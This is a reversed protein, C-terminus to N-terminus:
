LIKEWKGDLGTIRILNVEGGKGDPVGAIVIRDGEKAQGRAAAERIAKGLLGDETVPGDSFMPIVGRTLALKRYTGGDPTIGLVCAAPFFRSIMRATGGTRSYAAILKAGSDAALACATRSLAELTGDASFEADKACTASYPDSEARAAIKAMTAVAEAPYAGEATEGTLTLASAGDYVANAIDSIEARTPRPNVTMSQLMETAVACTKGKRRCIRIIRKQIAPLEEFPIETGLDGRAVLIGDAVDAIEEINDVGERNEIKAILEIGGGPSGCEKLFKKVDAVDQARSVFSLAFFDAGQMVGFKLDERDKASLYERDLRKGPFYMSKRDSLEGCTLARCVAENKKCESVEFVMLGNNVTIKDGPTVIKCIDKCASVRRGDGQVNESTFSFVDGEKLFIKGKEFTGIRIEPGKTDFLIPLPVRMRERVRKILAVYQAHSEHTGHSLNLRAVDMGGEAMECLIKEDRCAPGATAIIKTKKM